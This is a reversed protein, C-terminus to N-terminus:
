KYLYGVPPQQNPTLGYICIYIEGLKENTDFYYTTYVDVHGNIGILNISKKLEIKLKRGDSSHLHSLYEICAPLGNVFVPNKKNLGYDRKDKGQNEIEKNRTSCEQYIADLLSNLVELNQREQEKKDIMTKQLSGENKIVKVNKLEPENALIFNRSAVM